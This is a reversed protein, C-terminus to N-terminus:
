IFALISLAFVGLVSIVFDKEMVRHSFKNIIKRITLSAICSEVLKDSVKRLDKRFILAFTTLVFISVGTVPIWLNRLFDMFNLGSAGGIIINSADGILTLDGGINAFFIEAFIYPKPDKGMGKVLEITLPVTILITTVNPLFTSLIGTLLSFFIFIYLPNGKTLIAIKVNIWELIGSKGAINVMLMMGLILFITDFDVASIAEEPTLIKLLVM